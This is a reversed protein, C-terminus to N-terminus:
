AVAYPTELSQGTLRQYNSELVAIKQDLEESYASLEAHRHAARQITSRLIRLRTFIDSDVITDQSDLIAQGANYETQDEVTLAEGKASRVHLEWWREYNFDTM